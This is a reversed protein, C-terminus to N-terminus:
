RIRIGSESVILLRGAVDAEVLSPLYRRIFDMVGRRGTANPRFLVLGAYQDPPYVRVDAIGKDMTLLVRRDAAVRELLLPYETGALGQDPVTDVEHGAARLDDAIEVPINEDLKFKM